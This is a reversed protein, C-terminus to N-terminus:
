DPPWCHVEQETPEGQVGPSFHEQLWSILELILDRGPPSSGLRKHGRGTHVLPAFKEPLQPAERGFYYFNESILVRNTSLDKEIDSQGHSSNCIQELRGSSRKRYINDGRPNNPGPKKCAYQLDEFYKDFTLARTIQMAFVVRGSAPKPTTGLIWSGINATKRIKPKCCALTCIGGFPNPAFGGDNRIIYSFLNANLDAM